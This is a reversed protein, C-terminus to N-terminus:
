RTARQLHDPIAFPVRDGHRDAALLGDVLHRGIWNTFWRPIPDVRRGRSMLRTVAILITLVFRGGTSVPVGIMDAVDDGVYRRLMAPAIRAVAAPVRDDVLNLLTSTLEVGIASSHQQRAFIGRQLGDATAIDHPLLDDVIGLLHGIVAWLHMFDEAAGHDFEVGSRRFADLVVSTFTLLTGALDEQNVPVGWSASWEPGRPLVDPSADDAHAVAPDNAILWRIAAHMLRVHLIRGVAAGGPTFGDPTTVDMLFQATENLRREPDDRLRGTLWIVHAGKAAAYASPLSALYLATFHHFMWDSFFTQGRSVRGPDAWSPLASADRLFAAIAPVQDEPRVRLHAVLAGFLAAPEHRDAAAFYGAVAEDAPRDAVSRWRDLEEDTWRSPTPSM